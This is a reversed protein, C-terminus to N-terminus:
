RNRLDDINVVIVKAMSAHAEVAAEWSVIVNRLRNRLVHDLEAELEHPRPFNVMTTTNYPWTASSVRSLFPAFKPDSSSGLLLTFGPWTSRTSHASAFSFLLASIAIWWPNAIWGAIAVTVAYCTVAFMLNDEGAESFGRFLAVAKRLELDPLFIKRDELGFVKRNIGFEYAHALLRVIFALIFVGSLIKVFLSGPWQHFTFMLAALIVIAGAHAKSLDSPM